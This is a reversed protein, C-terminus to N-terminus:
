VEVQPYGSNPSRVFKGALQKADPDLLKGDMALAPAILGSTGNADIFRALVANNKKPVYGVRRGEIWVAVANADHENRPERVLTAVIGPQLAMIFSEPIGTFNTGVISYRNPM